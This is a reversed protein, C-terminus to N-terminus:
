QRPFYFPLGQSMLAQMAANQPMTTRMTNAVGDMDSDTLTASSGFVEQEAFKQAAADTMDANKYRQKALTFKKLADNSMTQSSGRAGFNEPGYGQGTFYSRGSLPSINYLPNTINVLGLKMRNNWANSFAQAMNNLYKRRANDYQQRAVVSADYREKANMTNFLNVKDKRDQERASIDNFMGVSRDATNAIAQTVANGTQGALFSLNSALASSPGYAGMTDASTNYTQQLQQAQALWDPLAYQGKEFSLDRSYPMYINPPLAAATLMNVMDPTTYGFPSQATVAPGMPNPTYEEQQKQPAGSCVAEAEEATNFLGVQMNAYPGKVVVAEVGNPTCRYKTTQEVTPTTTTPAPATIPDLQRAGFLGDVYAKELAALQQPTLDKSFKYTPRGKADKDSLAVLDKFQRGKTTLGYEKWMQNIRNPDNKLIYNYIMKQAEANNLKSIGPIVAEWQNIYEASRNFKNSKGTPTKQKGGAYPDIPQAEYNLGEAAMPIYGGYAMEAPNLVPASVSPVGQPFGKMSEQVLALKGLKDSYNKVMLQATAKSLYDANPDEMVAKFKNVDYKKALQAPTAAKSGGGFMKLIEPDKIKMKRTDSFIFSGEPANLPTGGQAHRKGGISMHELGGDGDLDGYITEGKEAEINAMSRPVPGLTSSVSEEKSDPMDTYVRRAGLDFGYGMQGGYAMQAPGSVIRIKMSSPNVNTGGLAFMGENPTPLQDPQFAGSNTMFNGRFMETPQPNLNNVYQQGRWDDKQRKNDYMSVINNIVGLGQKFKRIGKVAKNWDPGSSSQGFPVVEEQKAPTGEQSTEYQVNPEGFNGTTVRSGDPKVVTTRPTAFQQQENVDMWNYNPQNAGPQMEVGPQSNFMQAKPLGKKTIRIKM